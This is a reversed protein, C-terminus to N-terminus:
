TRSRAESLLDVTTPFPVDSLWFINSENLFDDSEGLSQIRVIDGEKMQRRSGLALYGDGHCSM